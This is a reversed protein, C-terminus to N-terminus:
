SWEDSSPVAAAAGPKQFMARKTAVPKTVGEATPSVTSTVEVTSNAAPSNPASLIESKVEQKRVNVVPSDIIRGGEDLDALAYATGYGLMTIARGIAGTEAKEIFDAFDKKSESKTGVGQKILRNSSDFVKVTAKIVARDESLTLNETEISFAGGETDENFWVIRHAVQMYPKGKLSMLPLVTGKKTKVTDM